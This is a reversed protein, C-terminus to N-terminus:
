SSGSREQNESRWTPVDGLEQAPEDAGVACPRHVFHDAWGPWAALTEISYHCHAVLGALSSSPVWFACPVCLVHPLIMAM